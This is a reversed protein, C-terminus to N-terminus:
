LRPVTFVLGSESRRVVDGVDAEASTGSYVLRGNITISIRPASRPIGLRVPGNPAAARAQGDGVSYRAGPGGAVQATAGSLWTLEVESDPTVDTLEIEIGDGAPVLVVAEDSVEGAPPPTALAEDHASPADDELGLWVRVPSGPLASAAGAAVLLIAAARRLHPLGSGRRSQRARLADLRARVRAKAEDTGEGPGGGVAPGGGAQLTTTALLDEIARARARADALAHRCPVCSEVHERVEPDVTEDDRLAVLLAEDVHTM